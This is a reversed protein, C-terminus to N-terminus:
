ICILCVNKTIYARHKKLIPSKGKLFKNLHEDAGPKTLDVLQLLATLWGVEESTSLLEDSKMKQKLIESLGEM